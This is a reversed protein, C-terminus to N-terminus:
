KKTGEEQNEELSRVRQRMKWKLLEYVKLAMLKSVNLDLVKIKMM